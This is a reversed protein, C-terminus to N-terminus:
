SITRTSKASAMAFFNTMLNTVDLIADELLERPVKFIRIRKHPTFSVKGFLNTPNSVSAAANVTAVPIDTDTDSPDFTPFGIQGASTPIVTAYQRIMVQNRLKVILQARFDQDVIAGGEPDTLTTLDKFEADVIGKERAEHIYSQAKTGPPQRLFGRVFRKHKSWALHGRGEETAVAKMEAESAMLGLNIAQTVYPNAQKFDFGDLSIGGDGFPHKRNPAATEAIAAKLDAEQKIRNASKMHAASEDFFADVQAEQEKTLVGKTEADAKLMIAKGKTYAEEALQIYNM